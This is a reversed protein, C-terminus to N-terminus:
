WWPFGINLHVSVAPWSNEFKSTLCSRFEIKLCPSVGREYFSPFFHKFNTQAIFIAEAQSVVTELKVECVCMEKFQDRRVPCTKSVVICKLIPTLAAKTKIASVQDM